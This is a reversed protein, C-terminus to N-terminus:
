RHALPPTGQKADKKARKIKKKFVKTLYKEFKPAELVVSAFTASVQKEKLALKALADRHQTLSTNADLTAQECARLESARTNRRSELDQVCCLASRGIARM